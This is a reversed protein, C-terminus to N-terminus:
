EDINMKEDIDLSQRPCQLPWFCKSSKKKEEGSVCPLTHSQETLAWAQSLNKSENGKLNRCLGCFTLYLGNRSIFFIYIVLPSQQCASFLSTGHFGTWSSKFSYASSDSTPLILETSNGSAVSVHTETGCLSWLSTIENHTNKGSDRRVQDSASSKKSCGLFAPIM